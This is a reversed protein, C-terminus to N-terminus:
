LGNKKQVFLTYKKKEVGIKNLWLFKFFTM